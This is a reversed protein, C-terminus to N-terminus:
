PLCTENEKLRKLTIVKKNPILGNEDEFTVVKMENHNLLDCRMISYESENHDSKLDNFAINGDISEVFLDLGNESYESSFTIAFPGGSTFEANINGADDVTFLLSFYEGSSEWDDNNCWNGVINSLLEEKQKEKEKGQNSSSKDAPTCSMLVLVLYIFRSLRITYRKM